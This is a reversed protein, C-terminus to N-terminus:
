CNTSDFDSDLIDHADDYANGETLYMDMEHYNGTHRLEDFLNVYNRSDGAFTCGERHLRVVWVEYMAHESFVLAKVEDPFGGDSFVVHNIADHVGQSALYGFHEKGMIPKVFSESIHIFFERPSMQGLLDCPLEKTDRDNYLMMFQDFKEGGLMAKAINFMPEKFSHVEFGSTERLIAAITDKGVGAPGNLIIVKKM